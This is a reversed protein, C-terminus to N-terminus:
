KSLTEHGEVKHSWQLEIQNLYRVTALCDMYVSKPCVALRSQKASPGRERVVHSQKKM